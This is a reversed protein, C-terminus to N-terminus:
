GPLAESDMCHTFFHFQRVLNKVGYEKVEFDLEAHCDLVHKDFLLDVFWSINTCVYEDPKSFSCPDSMKNRRDSPASYHTVNEFGARRMKISQKIKEITKDIARTERSTICGVASLGSQDRTCSLLISVTLGQNEAFDKM